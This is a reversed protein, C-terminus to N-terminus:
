FLKSPESVVIFLLGMHIIGMRLRGVDKQHHFSGCHVRRIVFLLGHPKSIQLIHNFIRQAFKGKENDGAPDVERRCDCPRWVPSTKM